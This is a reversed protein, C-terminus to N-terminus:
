AGGGSDSSSSIGSSSATQSLFSQRYTNWTNTMDTAAVGEGNAKEQFWQPPTESYFSQAVDQETMGVTSEPLGKSKATSLTIKTGTSGTTKNTSPKVYQLFAGLQKDEPLSTISSPLTGNNKLTYFDKVNGTLGATTTGLGTAINKLASAIDTSTYNTGPTKNLTTLMEAPDTIGQQYLTAVANDKMSQVKNQLNAQISAQTSAQLKTLEAQRSTNLDQIEKNQAAFETWSQNAQASKAASLAAAEKSAIDSLKAIGASQEATLIGGNIAGAYRSAGSRVGLTELAGYSRTNADQQQQMLTNFSNAISTYVANSTADNYDSQSKFTNNINAVDNAYQDDSQRQPSLMDSYTGDDPIVYMKSDPNYTAKTLDIGLSQAEEASYARTPSGNATSDQNGGTNTANPSVVVAPGNTTLNNTATATKTALNNQMSTVNAAANDSSLVSVPKATSYTSTNAPVQTGTGISVSSPALTTSDM